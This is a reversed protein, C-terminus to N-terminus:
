RYRRHDALLLTSCGSVTADVVHSVQQPREIGLKVLNEGVCGGHRQVARLAYALGVAGCAAGRGPVEEVVGVLTREQLGIGRQVVDRLAPDEEVLPLPERLDPIGYAARDVGACRCAAEDEGPACRGPSPGVRVAAPRMRDNRM